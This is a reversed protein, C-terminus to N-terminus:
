NSDHAQVSARQRVSALKVMHTCYLHLLLFKKLGLAVSNPSRQHSPSIPDQLDRPSPFPLGYWYERQSIEHASSGPPSCDLPGCFTPYSKAVSCVRLGCLEFVPINCLDHNLFCKRFASQLCLPSSHWASTLRIGHMM